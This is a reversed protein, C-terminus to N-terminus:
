FPCGEPQGENDIFFIEYWEREWWNGKDWIIEAQRKIYKNAYLHVYEENKYIMEKQSGDLYEKGNKM